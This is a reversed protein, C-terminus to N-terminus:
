VCYAKVSLRVNKIYSFRNYFYAQCTATKGPGKGPGLYLRADCITLELNDSNWCSCSIAEKGSPCNVYVGYIGLAPVDYYGTWEYWGLNTAFNRQSFPLADQPSNDSPMAEVPKGFSCASLVVFLVVGATISTKM